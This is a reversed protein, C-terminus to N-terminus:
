REVSTGNILERWYDLGDTGDRTIRDGFLSENPVLYGFSKHYPTSNRNPMEGYPRTRTIGTASDRYAEPIRKSGPNSSISRIADHHVTGATNWKGRQLALKATDMLFRIRIQIGPWEYVDGNRIRDHQEAFLYDLRDIENALDGASIGRSKLKPSLGESVRRRTEDDWYVGPMLQTMNPKFTEDWLGLTTSDLPLTPHKSTFYVGDTAVMSVARAGDPHSAIADLILIRCGATILSAYVPNSYKPTGVSQATKGYASNYVLKMAKGQPSNKGAELRLRYMREIGIDPPNFPPTCSCPKYSVWESVELTDILGARQSARIESLWYWGSTVNPRLIRGDRTRYPMSGIFPNSGTVTCNVLTYRSEDRPYGEGSGREYEGDHEGITHLCPLSAIVFPYASNIDYEWVDGIHGHMFQEFWGGYYSAQAADYFWSPMSMYVDANLLGGENKREDGYKKNWEVAEPDAVKRHLMDMWTQAARGPGYWENNKLRIPIADNMFGQNLRETVRSLIENELVNYMQMSQYYSSDGYDHTSGRDSKGEVVIAYEEETCVPEEWGKPDIVKLFSTQWFPGTDCIYMWSDVKVKEPGVVHANVKRWFSTATGKYPDGVYDPTPQFEMEGAVIRAPEDSVSNWDANGLDMGCTRNRCLGTYKSKVHTHPRLKFRRNAMIDIEWGEWVVPDPFPNRRSKRQSTREAIGAPTLLLRAHREPLLKQWHVFDYGLFFGVYAADPNGQYQQWLFSLIEGLTLGEGNRFLTESGVSLMVYEHTGDPRDVGEGDVGVFQVSHSERRSGRASNNQCKRSCFRQTRTKPEFPKGCSQCFFDSQM